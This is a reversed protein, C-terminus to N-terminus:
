WASSAVTTVSSPLTAACVSCVNVNVGCPGHTSVAGGGAFPVCVLTLTPTPLELGAAAAIVTAGYHPDATGEGIGPWHKLCSAVGAQDQGDIFAGALDIVSQALLVSFSARGSPTQLRRREALDQEDIAAGPDRETALAVLVMGLAIGQAFEGKSTELAIATTIATWAGSGNLGRTFTITVALPSRRSVGKSILKNSAVASVGPGLDTVADSSGASDDPM